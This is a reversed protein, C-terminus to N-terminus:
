VGTTSLLTGTVSLTGLAFTEFPREHIFYIGLWTSQSVDLPVNCRYPLIPSLQFLDFLGKVATFDQWQSFFSSWIIEGFTPSFPQNLLTQLKLHISNTSFYRDSQFAVKMFSSSWQNQPVLIIEEFNKLNSPNGGTIKKTLLSSKVGTYVLSPRIKKKQPDFTRELFGQLLGLSTQKEFEFPYLIHNPKELFAFDDELFTNTPAQFAQNLKSNETVKSFEVEESFNSLAPSSLSFTLQTPSVGTLVRTSLLDSEENLANILSTQWPTNIYIEDFVSWGTVDSSRSFTLTATSSAATLDLTGKLGKVGLSLTINGSLPLSPSTLIEFSLNQPDLILPQFVGLFDSETVGSGFFSSVDVAHITILDGVELQHKFNFDVFCTQDGAVIGFPLTLQQKLSSKIEKVVYDTRDFSQRQKQLTNEFSPTCYLGGQAQLVFDDHAKTLNITSWNRSLTHYVLGFESTTSLGSSTLSPLYWIVEDQLQNTSSSLNEATLSSLNQTLLPQIFNKIEYDIQVVQSESVAVFGRNSLCFVTENVSQNLLPSLSIFDDDILTIAYDAEQDGTLRFFGESSCIIISDRIKFLSHIENQNTGIALFQLPPFAAPELPKSYAIQNPSHELPFPKTTETINRFPPITGSFHSLQNREFLVRVGERNEFIDFQPTGQFYFNFRGKQEFTTVGLSPNTLFSPTQFPSLNLARYQLCYEQSLFDSNQLSNIYVSGSLLSWLPGALCKISGVAPTPLSGGDVREIEYIVGSYLPGLRCVFTEETDIRYVWSLSNTTSFLFYSKLALDNGPFNVPNGDIVAKTPDLPHRQIELPFFQYGGYVTTVFPSARLVSENTELIVLGPSLDSGYSFDTSPQILSNKSLNALYTTEKKTIQSQYLPAPNNLSLPGEENTNTYLPLNSELELDTPGGDGDIVVLHPLLLPPTPFAQEKVLFMQSINPSGSSVGVSRYIQVFYDPGTGGDQNNFDEFLAHPIACSIVGAPCTALDASTFSSLPAGLVRIQETKSISFTLSNINSIKFVADDPITPTSVANRFQIGFGEFTEITGLSFLTRSITLENTTGSLIPASTTIFASSDAVHYFFPSPSGLFSQNNIVKKFVACYAYMKGITLSGLSGKTGVPDTPISPFRPFTFPVADIAREVSYLGVKPHKLNEDFFYSQGLNSNFFTEEGTSDFTIKKLNSLNFSSPVVGESEFFAKTYSSTLVQSSSAATPIVIYFDNGLLEVDCFGTDGTSTWSPTPGGGSPYVEIYTDSFSIVDYNGLIPVSSLGVFSDLSFANTQVPVHLFTSLRLLDSDVSDQEVAITSLSKLTQFFGEFVSIMNLPFSRELFDLQNDWLQNQFEFRILNQISVSEFFRVFLNQSNLLARLEVSLGNELYGLVSTERLTIVGQNNPSFAKRVENTEAPMLEKQGVRKSLGAIPKSFTIQDALVFGEEVDSQLNNSYGKQNGLLSSSIIDTM